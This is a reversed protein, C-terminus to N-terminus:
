TNKELSAEARAIYKEIDRFEQSKPFNQKIKKYQELAKEYDGETEYALGAKKLFIPSTFFNEEYNAAKLYYDIAKGVEGLELYADGIGGYAMAQVMVDDSGFDKLHDIAEEYMGQKLYAMGAYYHSLNAAKTMGYEDIIDLFGLYNGDGQLALNLSDQEFYREAMFMQNRAEKEMPTLYYKKFAMFGLVIIVIGAVVYMLVKQNKEIFQETKTLAEEVAQINKGEPEQSKKKAM